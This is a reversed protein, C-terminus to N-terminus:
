SGMAHRALHEQWADELRSLEARRAAIRDAHDVARVALLGAAALPALVGAWLLWDKSQVAFTCCIMGTGFLIAGITWWLPTWPSELAAAEMDLRARFEGWSDALEPPPIDRGMAM